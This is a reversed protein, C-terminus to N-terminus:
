SLRNSRRALLAFATPELGVSTMKETGTGKIGTKTAVMAKGALNWGSVFTVATTKPIREWLILSSWHGRLRYSYGSGTGAAGVARTRTLYSFNPDRFHLGGPPSRGM